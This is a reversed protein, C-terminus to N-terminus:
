RLIESNIASDEPGVYTLNLNLIKDAFSYLNSSPIASWYKTKDPNKGAEKDNIYGTRNFRQPSSLIIGSPRQGELFYDAVEGQYLTKDICLIDARIRSDPALFPTLLVHWQSIYPFVL